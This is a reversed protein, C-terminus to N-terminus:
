KSPSIVGRDLEALFVGLFDLAPDAAPEAFVGASQRTIYLKCLVPASAFQWRPAEPASWGKGDNWSWFIRLASPNPGERAAVATWFDARRNKSDYSYSFPAQSGLVYGAGPFCVDPTHTSIRGPSGALLTVTVNLGRRPNSYRRAIYADAGAAALEAAPIELPTGTWDSIAMPIREMRAGLAVVAGTVGWRNTWLGDVFGAGVILFVASAIRIKNM